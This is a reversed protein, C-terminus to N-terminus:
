VKGEVLGVGCKHDEVVEVVEGFFVPWQQIEQLVGTDM